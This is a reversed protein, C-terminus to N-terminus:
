LSLEKRYEPDQVIKLFIKIKYSGSVMYKRISKDSIVRFSQIEKHLRWTDQFNIINWYIARVSAFAVRPNSLLLLVSFEAFVLSCYMPLVWLLTSIQYNKLLSRLSNKESLFRTEARHFNMKDQSITGGSKHYAIAFPTIVCRYGALLSRWCLDWDESLFSYSPDFPGVKELVERKILLSAGLVGFIDTVYDYQGADKERYGRFSPFGFVDCCIGMNDIVNRKYFLLLKCGCIGIKPDMNATKVLEDLWNPEVETDNNLFIIFDGKAYKLGLNNGAAFGLNQESCIIKVWPFAEKVFEISRDTSANDVMITEFNSYNLKRISKFCAELHPLGNYNLVIISALQARYEILPKINNM